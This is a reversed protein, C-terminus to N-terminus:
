DLFSWCVTRFRVPFFPFPLLHYFLPPTPFMFTLTRYCDTPKPDLCVGGFSPSLFRAPGSQSFQWTLHAVFFSLWVPPIKISEDDLHPVSPLFLLPFGWSFTPAVLYQVVRGGWLAPSFGLEPLPPFCHVTPTQLPPQHLFPPPSLFSNCQPRPVSWGDVGSVSTTVCVWSSRLCSTLPSGRPSFLPRQFFIFSEVIRPSGELDGYVVWLPQRGYIAFVRFLFFRPPPFQPSFRLFFLRWVRGPFWVCCTSRM